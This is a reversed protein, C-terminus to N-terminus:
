CHYSHYSIQATGKTMLPSLENYVNLYRGNSEVNVNDECISYSLVRCFYHVDIVSLRDDDMCMPIQRLDGAHFSTIPCDFNMVHANYTLILSGVVVWM